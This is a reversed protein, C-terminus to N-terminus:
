FVRWIGLCGYISESNMEEEPANRIVNMDSQECIGGEPRGNNKTARSM